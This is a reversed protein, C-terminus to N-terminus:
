KQQEVPQTAPPNANDGVVGPAVNVGGGNIQIQMGQMVKQMQVNGGKQDGFYKEYVKAGEPDNKKLDDADKAKYEKTQDKETVSLKLGEGDIHLHANVGDIIVTSDQVGNGGDQMHVMVNRGGQMVAGNMRIIGGPMIMIQCPEPQPLVPHERADIDKLITQARTAVEPDNSVSAAKLADVASKGINTLEKSANQRAQFDEDGLKAILAKIQEPSVAAQTAPTTVPAVETPKPTNVNQSAGGGVEVPIGAGPGSNTDGGAGWTAQGLTIVVVCAALLMHGSLSKEM